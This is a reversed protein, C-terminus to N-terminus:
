KIKTYMIGILYINKKNAAIQLRVFSKVTAIFM